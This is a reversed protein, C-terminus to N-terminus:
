AVSSTLKHYFLEELHCQTLEEDEFFFSKEKAIRLPFPNDLKYGSYLIGIFASDWMILM